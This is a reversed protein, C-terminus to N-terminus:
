TRTVGGLQRPRAEIQPPNQEVEDFLCRVMCPMGVRCPLHEVASPQPSM